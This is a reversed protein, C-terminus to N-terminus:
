ECLMMYWWLMLGDVVGGVLLECRFPPTSIKNQPLTVSTSRAKRLTVASHVIQLSYNQPM